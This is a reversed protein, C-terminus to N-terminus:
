VFLELLKEPVVSLDGILIENYIRLLETRLKKLNQPNLLDSLYKIGFGNIKEM